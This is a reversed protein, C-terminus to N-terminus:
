ATPNIALSAYHWAEIAYQKAKSYDGSRFTKVAFSGYMQALSLNTEKNTM